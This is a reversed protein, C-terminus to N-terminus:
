VKESLYGVILLRLVEFGERGVLGEGGIFGAGRDFLVSAGGPLAAFGTCSTSPVQRNV